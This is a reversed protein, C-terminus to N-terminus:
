GARHDASDESMIDQQVVEQDPDLWRISVGWWYDYLLWLNAELAANALGKSRQIDFPITRLEEHVASTELEDALARALERAGDPVLERWVTMTIAKELVDEDPSRLYTELTERKPQTLELRDLSVLGKAVLKLFASDIPKTAGNSYGFDVLESAVRPDFRSVARALWAVERPTTAKEASSRVFPAAISWLDQGLRRDIEWAIALWSGLHAASAAGLRLGFFKPRVAEACYQSALSSAAADCLHHKLQRLVTASVHVRREWVMRRAVHKFDIGEQLWLVRAESETIHGEAVLGILVNNLWVLRWILRESSVLNAFLEPKIAQVIRSAQGQGPRSVRAISRLYLALERCDRSAMARECLVDEQDIKHVFDDVMDPLNDRLRAIANLIRTTLSLRPEQVVREAVSAVLQNLPGRHRETLVTPTTVREAKAVGHLLEGIKGTAPVDRAFRLLVSWVRDDRLITAASGPHIDALVHLYKGLWEVDSNPRAQKVLWEEKGALLFKAREPDPGTCDRVATLLTVVDELPPRGTMLARVSAPRQTLFRLGEAPLSTGLFHLGQVTDAFDLHERLADGIAPWALDHLAQAKGSDIAAVGWVLVAHGSMRLRRSSKKMLLAEISNQKLVQSALQADVDHLVHLFRGVANAYPCNGILSTLGDAGVEKLLDRTKTLNVRGLRGVARGINRLDGENRLMEVLVSVEVVTLANAAVPPCVGYIAELDDAVQGLTKGEPMSPWIAEEDFFGTMLETIYHPDAKSLVDLAFQLMGGGVLRAIEVALDTRDFARVIRRAQAPVSLQLGRILSLYSGLRGDTFELEPVGSAPWVRELVLDSLLRAVSLNCRAVSRLLRGVLGRDPETLLVEAIPSGRVLQIDDVFDQTDSRGDLNALQRAVSVATPVRDLDALTELAHSLDRTAIMPQARLGSAVYEASLDRIYRVAHNRSCEGIAALLRLVAPVHMAAMRAGLALMVQRDNLLRLAVDRRSHVVLKEFILRVNPSEGNVIFDRLSEFLASGHSREEESVLQRTVSQCFEIRGVSFFSRKSSAPITWPHALQERVLRDLIEDRESRSVEGTSWWSAAPAIGLEGLIAAQFWTARELREMRSLAPAITRNYQWIALERPRLPVFQGPSSVISCAISRTAYWLSHYYKVAKDIDDASWELGTKRCADEILQPMVTYGPELYLPELIDKPSAKGDRAWRRKYPASLLLLRASGVNGQLFRELVEAYFGRHEHTGELVYLRKSGEHAVEGALREATLGIGPRVNQFFTQWGGQEMELACMAALTRRGSGRAGIVLVAADHMLREKVLDVEDRRYPLGQEVDAWTVEGLWDPAFMQPQGNPSALYESSKVFVAESPKVPPAPPPSDGKPILSIRELDYIELVKAILQTRSHTKLIKNMDRVYSHVTSESYPTQAALLRDTDFGALLRELVDLHGEKLDYRALVAERIRPWRDSSV